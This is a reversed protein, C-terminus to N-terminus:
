LLWHGHARVRLGNVAVAPPVADLRSLPLLSFCPPSPLWPLSSRAPALLAARNAIAIYSSPVASCRRMVAEGQWRVAMRGGCVRCHACKASVVGLRESAMFPDRWLMLEQEPKALRYCLLVVVVRKNLWISVRLLLSSLPCRLTSQKHWAYADCARVYEGHGSCPWPSAAKGAGSRSGHRKCGAQSRSSKPCM